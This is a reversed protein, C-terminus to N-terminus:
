YEDRSLKKIPKYFRNGWANFFVRTVLSPRHLPKTNEYAYGITLLLEIEGSEPIGLFDKLVQEPFLEVISCAFGEEATKLLINEVAFGVQHKVYKEARKDFLKKASKINSCVVIVYPAKKIFDQQCYDAVKSIISADDIVIYNLTHLNGPNPAHNAAIILETMKEIPPKKMSFKKSEGWKKIAQNLEM